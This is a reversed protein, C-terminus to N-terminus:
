SYAYEITGVGANGPDPEERYEVPNPINEAKYTSRNKFDSLFCGM